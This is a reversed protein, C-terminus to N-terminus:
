RAWNKPDYPNIAQEAGSMWQGDYCDVMKHGRILAMTVIPKGAAVYAQFKDQVISRAVQEDTGLHFGYREAKGETTEISLEFTQTM